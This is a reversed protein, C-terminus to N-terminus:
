NSIKSKSWFLFRSVTLLLLTPLFLLRVLLKSFQNSAFELRITLSERASQIRNKSTLSVEHWRYKSSLCNVYTVSGIKSLSMILEQDFALKFRSSPLDLKMTSTRRFLCSPQSILNPGWHVLKIGLLGPRNIAIHRTRHDVYECNSYSLVVEPNSKMIELMKQYGSAVILDDDGIWNWYEATLHPLATRIAHTLGEHDLEILKASELAQFIPTVQFKKAKPYVICIEFLDQFSKISEVLQTSYEPREGLTPIILGIRDIM